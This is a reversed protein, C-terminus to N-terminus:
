KRRNKQTKHQQRANYVYTDIQRRLSQRVITDREKDFPQPEPKGNKRQRYKNDIKDCKKIGELPPVKLM